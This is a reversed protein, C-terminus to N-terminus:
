HVGSLKIIKKNSERSESVDCTNLKLRSKKEDSETNQLEFIPKIYGM